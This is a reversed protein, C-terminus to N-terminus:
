VPQLHHPRILLSSSARHGIRISQLPRLDAGALGGVVLRHLPLGAGLGHDGDGIPRSAGGLADAGGVLAQGPREGGARDHQDVVALHAEPDVLDVAVVDV